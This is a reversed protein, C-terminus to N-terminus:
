SIPTLDIILKALAIIIAVVIVNYFLVTRWVQWWTVLKRRLIEERIIEKANWRASKESSCYRVWKIMDDVYDTQNRKTTTAAFMKPYPM